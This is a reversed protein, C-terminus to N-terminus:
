LLARQLELVLLVQVLLHLYTPHVLLLVSLEVDQCYDMKLLQRFLLREVDAVDQYCDMKLQHRLVVDVVVDLQNLQHVDQFTLDVDLNPVDRNQLADLYEVDQLYLHDRYNGVVYLHRVM